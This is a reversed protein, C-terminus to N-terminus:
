KEANIQSSGMLYGALAMMWLVVPYALMREEGGRGFVLFPSTQGMFVASFLVILAFVGIAISFYAFPKSLFGYAAIASLPGTVFWAMAVLAHISGTDGPFVGVAMAALGSIAFLAPFLQKKCARYILLASILVLLGILFTATNFLMASPQVLSINPPVTSALDSLDNARTSYGPFLTESALVTMFWQLIGIFILAGALNLSNYKRAM